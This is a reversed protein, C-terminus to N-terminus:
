YSGTRGVGPTYGYLSHISVARYFPIPTLSATSLTANWTVTGGDVEAVRGAGGFGVVTSGHDLRQVSGMSMSIVGPVPRYEWVMTATMAQFDLAYEIARAPGFTRIHNDMLLLHGNELMQVHHQGSFGGLPDGIIRFQNHRGGFRWRITGTVADINTIESLGQFSVLYNGDRDLALSSPHDIDPIPPIAAAWDQADFHDVSRWRFVTMGAANQREILHVALVADRAGGLASLDFTELDYGLMHVGTLPAGPSDAFSLLLEHPDTYDPTTTAFSRVVAGDAALEEFHGSVSQWGFSRGVYITLNGNRQQKAEIPWMGPFRRYWRVDGAADFVVVYGDSDTSTDGLVPVVLTYNESLSGSGRLHLSQIASPLAATTISDSASTSGGAGVAEVALSYRATPRLGLVVIRAQGAAPRTFPTTGTDGNADIFRVRVSDIGNVSCTVIASLVNNPNAAVSVRSLEPAGGSPSLGDRCGACCAVAIAIELLHKM